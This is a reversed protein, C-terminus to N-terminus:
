DLQAMNMNNRPQLNISNPIGRLLTQRDLSVETRGDYEGVASQLHATEKQLCDCDYVQVYTELTTSETIMTNKRSEFYVNRRIM